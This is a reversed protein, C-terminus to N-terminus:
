TYKGKFPIRHRKQWGPSTVHCSISYLYLLDVQGSEEALLLREASLCGFIKFERGAVLRNKGKPMSSAIILM